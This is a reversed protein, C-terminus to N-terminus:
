VKLQHPINPNINIWRDVYEQLGDASVFTYDLTLIQENHIGILTATLEEERSNIFLHKFGLDRTIRLGYFDSPSIHPAILKRNQLKRALYAIDPKQRRLGILPIQRRVLDRIVPVQPRASILALRQM